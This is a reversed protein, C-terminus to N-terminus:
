WTVKYTCSDSGNLRSPFNEDIEVKVLISNTPKFKRAITMIIGKDFSSPYPNKCEMVAFRVNEYYEILKYYGTDGGRHNMKYAIDISELAQKLDNIPPFKANEPIAKGIAFLTNVGYKEGIEKFADLWSKQSYWREVQIDELNHNKLTILMQDKYNPLANVFALITQGNVEVNDSFAIYQAM